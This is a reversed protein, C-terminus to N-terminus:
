SSWHIPSILKLDTSELHNCQIKSPKQMAKVIEDLHRESDVGIIVRDIEPVQQVFSLCAELPSLCAEQYFDVWKEFHSGWKSFHLPLGDVPKLLIGQLFVSRAVVSVGMNSLRNLWGSSIVRRDFINLPVQVVDFFYTPFLDELIDPSYISIGIRNILGRNKLECLATYITEGFDGLLEEPRHLLVTDAQPIRLDRLSSVVAREYVGYINQTSTGVPPLKITVCFDSIGLRGLVEESNGYSSATDLSNIHNLRAIRLISEVEEEPVKGINNTVGYHQGFQATGLILKSAFGM